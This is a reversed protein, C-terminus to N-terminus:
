ASKPTNLSSAKQVKFRKFLVESLALKFKMPCTMSELVVVRMSDPNVLLFRLFLQEVFASVADVGFAHTDENKLLELIGIYTYIQQPTDPHHFETPVIWRPEPEGALGIQTSIAGISLIAASRSTLSTLSDSSSLVGLPAGSRVPIMELISHPSSKQIQDRGM